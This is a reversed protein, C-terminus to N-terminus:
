HIKGFMQTFRVDGEVMDRMDAVGNRFMLTREIGMGFAFGSYASTDIGVGELVKPNVVGCGGWEVWRGQFFVDMEASPETFPFYSPRLRTQVEPGFMQKAFHDITSKLHPMGIGKDVVLGEVQHFVPTHTQDLEDSRFVKGPSIVYVPLERNLLARIQVPSTQTRLVMGSQSNNIYFTDQMSRAPHNEPINLADFNLWEAEVEPGEEVSYGMAVFIEVVRNITSHLPHIGGNGIGLSALTVDVKELTLIEEDRQKTLENQKNLLLQNLEARYQGLIAGYKARLNQDLKGLSRNAIALKSKDGVHQIKVSKLAELDQVSDIASKAAHYAAELLALDLENVIEDSPM